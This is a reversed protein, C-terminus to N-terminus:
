FNPYSQPSTTPSAAASASPPNAALTFKLKSANGGLASVDSEFYLSIRCTTINIADTTAHAYNSRFENMKTRKCRFSGFGFWIVPYIKWFAYCGEKTQCSNGMKREGWRTRKSYPNKENKYKRWREFNTLWLGCLKHTHYLTYSMKKNKKEEMKIKTKRRLTNSNKIISKVM